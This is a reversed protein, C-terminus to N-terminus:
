CDLGREKRLAELMEVLNERKMLREMLEIWARNMCVDDVANVALIARLGSRVLENAREVETGVQAEKVKQTVTKELPGALRDVSGLVAGPALSCIKILVQQSLLRLEEHDALGKALYPMFAGVDLREPLTDLITDICALAAKRLPLGDDVKHKFPGLDVERQLKLDMTELLVPVVVEQLHQRILEPHHHVAANVMLLGARRVDLDEDRLVGLFDQMSDRLMHVPAQRSLSFRLATAVTWRTNADAGAAGLQQLTPIIRESHITALAGLCEAVMNRVGQEDSRCQEILGPLVQDLYFSFDQGFNAHVVIIEKLSALLLYQHRNSCVAQLVVPLFNPMNGVALHGLAYAAATKTEESNSEFCSLIM